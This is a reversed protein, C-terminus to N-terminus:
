KFFPITENERLVKASKGPEIIVMRDNLAVASALVYMCVYNAM